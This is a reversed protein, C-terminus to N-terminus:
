RQRLNPGQGIPNSVACKDSFAERKLWREELLLTMGHLRASSATSWIPPATRADDSATAATCKSADMVFKVRKEEKNEKGRRHETEEGSDGTARKKEPVQNKEHAGVAAYASM